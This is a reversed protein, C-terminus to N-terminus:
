GPVIVGYDVLAQWREEMGEALERPYEGARFWSPQVASIDPREEMEGLNPGTSADAVIKVPLNLNFWDELPTTEMYFKLASAAEDVLEERAEVVNADHIFMLMHMDAEDADRDFRIAGTLALDSAFRQVPSNGTVFVKGNRKAIWTGNAITPCWVRGSWQVWSKGYGSQARSRQRLEVIWCKGPKPINGMSDYKKPEFKTYDREVASASQGITSCLILFADAREKTGAVFKRFRGAQSDWCGDGKLMTDFLIRRQKPTLSMIVEATLTKDPMERRMRGGADNSICWHHQGAKTIHYGHKGLRNFLERIEQLYKPKSQTLGVARVGVPQGTKSWQKRYYGDTLVWGMLRVDDDEWAEGEQYDSGKGTLWIKHDGYDSLEESTKFVPVIRGKSYKSQAYADVLWRHNPTALADVAGAYRLMRGNVQGQNIAEIPHLEHVGTGPNPSFAMEGIRLEDVHKWGELTLIETDDSLCNIGQRSAMGVILDDDSEVNPLRRLAGHLARVYGHEKLFERMAEHWSKLRPYKAFFMERTAEAEEDSYAIKYDTRAYSKFKRWGMGYLFGFNVAKACFRKFKCYKAVTVTRRENGSLKQLYEGSGPWHTAVEILPTEDKSGLIFAQETIGMIAAATSTHIDGDNNYIRLMEREGAMAAAVRIEAQSLDVEVLLKGDKATVVKRFREALPGRKPANQSNPDSSSARGTVTRHLWLQPYIHPDTTDEIYQWFGSPEITKKYQVNGQLDVLVNGKSTGTPVELADAAGNEAFKEALGDIPSRRRAGPKMKPLVIGKTALADKVPKPVDGTKLRGVDTTETRAEEGVYTNRMKRITKYEMLDRVYSVHEFYPLHTKGSTSAKGGKTFVCPRLPRGGNEVVEEGDVRIGDPGFLLEILFDPSDFSITKGAKAYERLLKRPASRILRTVVEEESQALFAGLERLAQADVRIGRREMRKFMRLAPMQVTTFTNWNASDDQAKKLLVAALRYTVETDGGAYKLFPAHNVLDMRSKDISSDFDDSYGAFQPLWRRVCDALSKSQMNEDVAFALQITDAYWNAVEIGLTKLVHLDYGGNHAVCHTHPDDFLWKLQKILKTRKKNTLRGAAESADDMLAPNNWWELDLPVVLSEGKKRTFAATLVRFGPLRHKLGVTETDFAIQDPPNDLIEELDLVWRYGTGQAADRFEDVSWHCDALAALQAFDTTYIDKRDPFRLVDRPSLCPLYAAGQLPGRMEVEQLTGRIKTIQVAGGRWQRAAWKGLTVVAKPKVDFEDLANHLAELFEHNDRDVHKGAKGDSAADEETMPRCPTIFLFDEREFGCAKAERMFVKMEPLSMCMDAEFVDFSPVDCVVVVSANRGIHINLNDSGLKKM